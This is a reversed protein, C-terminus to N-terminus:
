KTRYVPKLPEIGLKKSVDITHIINNVLPFNVGTEFLMKLEEPSDTGFYNVRVGNENLQRISGAFDAYDSNKLLQIFDAKLRITEDVYEQVSGQREMNCIKIGPVAEKALRAAEASCALFVQHLRGQAEVLRALMVPLEGEGKIHINIWINHPMENLVEEPTPIQVGTYEPAKWSGADLKRIESFTLESVKGEGNTTRDVKSDHIVVMQNDKTLWADFEIMHAGAEVAARFAPITNEPHTEMAGRHACLGREPLKFVSAAKQTTHCGCFIFFVALFALSIKTKM